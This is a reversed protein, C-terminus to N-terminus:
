NTTKPENTDEGRLARIYNRITQNTCTVVRRIKEFSKGDKVLRRLEDKEFNTM